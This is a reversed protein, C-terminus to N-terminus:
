FPGSQAFRNATLHVTNRNYGSFICVMISLFVILLLGFTAARSNTAQMYVEALPFSGNSNVVADLDSIGYFITIAFLFATIFGLGVQAFVAKPLDVQPNPLEEALHTVADPTGITVLASFIWSDACIELM